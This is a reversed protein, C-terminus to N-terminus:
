QSSTCSQRGLIRKWDVFVVAVAGVIGLVDIALRMNEIGLSEIISFITYSAHNLVTYSILRGLAFGATIPLIETASIGATIFLFNSPLPSLAYIFSGSFLGRKKRSLIGGLSTANDVFQHPLYKLLVKSCLYLIFRGAVSGIVGFVALWLSDLAPNHIKYMSLVLWTPPVFAPIVNVLFAVLTVQLYLLINDM